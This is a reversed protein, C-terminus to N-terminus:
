VPVAFQGISLGPLTPLLPSTGLVRSCFHSPFSLMDRFGSFLWPSHHCLLALHCLSSLIVPDLDPGLAPKLLEAEGTTFVKTM